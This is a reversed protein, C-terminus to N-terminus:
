KSKMMFDYSFFSSVTPPIGSITKALLVESWTNKELSHSLKEKTIHHRLNDKGVLQKLDDKGLPHKLIDKRILHRFDDKGLPHRINGKALAPRIYEKGLIHRLNDKGLTGVIEFIIDLKNSFRRSQLRRASGELHLELLCYIDM